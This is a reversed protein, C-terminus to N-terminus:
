KERGQLEIISQLIRKRNMRFTLAMWRASSDDPFPGFASGARPRRPRRVGQGCTSPSGSSAEAADCPEADNTLQAQQQQQQQQQARELEHRQTEDEALSTHANMTTRVSDEDQDRCGNNRSVGCEDADIDRQAKPAHTALSGDVGLLLARCLASLARAVKREHAADVAGKDSLLQSAAFAGPGCM